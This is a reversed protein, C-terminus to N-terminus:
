EIFDTARDAVHSGQGRRGGAGPDITAYKRNGRRESALGEMREAVEQEVIDPGTVSNDNRGHLM